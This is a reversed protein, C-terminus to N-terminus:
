IPEEQNIALTWVRMDGTKRTATVTGADDASFEWQNNSLILGLKSNCDSTSICAIYNSPDDLAYSKEAIQMTKLIANAEKDFTNEKSKQYHTLGLTALIGIVVIVVLIELLTFGTLSLGGCKKPPRLNAKKDCNLSFDKKRLSNDYIM